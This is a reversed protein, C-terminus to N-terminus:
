AAVAPGDTAWTRLASLSVGQRGGPQLDGFLADTYDFGGYVEVRTTDSLQGTVTLHVSEGHPPRWATVTVQTVTDAWELLGSALAALQAPRLHVIVHDGDLADSGVRVSAIAASLSSKTLHGRIADLLRVMTASDNM